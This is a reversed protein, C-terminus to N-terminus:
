IVARMHATVVAQKALADAKENYTNGNHAKVWEWTVKRKSAEDNLMQWLDQNKVASGTSTRWNNRVWAPMWLTIGNKLYQSDTYLTVVTNEPLLRLGEIAAMMEMRNNTTRDEHGSLTHLEKGSSVYCVGWGGRGPNKACSGDTYMEVTSGAQLFCLFDDQTVIRRGKISGDLWELM